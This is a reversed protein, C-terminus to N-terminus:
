PFYRAHIKELAAGQKPTLSGFRRLGARLSQLFELTRETHDIQGGDLLDELMSAHASKPPERRPKEASKAALLDAFTLKEKELMLCAQRFAALREGDHETQQAITLFRSMRALDM